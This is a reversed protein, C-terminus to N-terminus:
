GLGRMSMKFLKIQHYGSQQILQTKKVTSAEILMEHRANQCDRDEDVWHKLATRENNGCAGQAVLETAWVIKCFVM